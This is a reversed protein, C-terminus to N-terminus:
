ETYFMDAPKGRLNMLYPTCDGIQVYQNIGGTFDKYDNATRYLLKPCGESDTMFSGRVDSLSFYYVQSNFTFFGSLYFHGKSFIIDDAGIATMAKKFERKFDNFFNNFEPTNRSNSGFYGYGKILRARLNNM